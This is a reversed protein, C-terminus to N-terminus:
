FYLGLRLGAELTTSEPEVVTSVIIGNSTLVKEPGRAAKWIDIYPEVFWPFVGGEKGLTSHISLGLTSGQEVTIADYPLFFEVDLRPDTAVKFDVGVLFRSVGNDHFVLSGGFLVYPWKYTEFLGAAVSTSHIERQWERYGIGAQVDAMWSFAPVRHRILAQLEYISADSRTKLPIGGNTQGDYDVTNEEWRGTLLLSVSQDCPTCVSTYIGPLAGKETNLIAGNSDKEEYDFGSISAGLQLIPAAMPATSIFLLGALCVVRTLTCIFKM